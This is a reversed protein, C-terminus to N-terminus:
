RRGPDQATVQELSFIMPSGQIGGRERRGPWVRLRQSPQLFAEARKRPSGCEGAAGSEKPDMRVVKSADLSAKGSHVASIDAAFESQLFTRKLLDAHPIAIERWPKM